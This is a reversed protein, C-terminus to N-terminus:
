KLTILYAVLQDIQEPKLDKGFTDPMFSRGNASYTPGAVLHASPEVISERIYGAADKAKGKYNPDATATAAKTGIGALSPGALNVGPSVSHCAFCAPPTANFLNQGLAVPESSPAAAQVPQSPQAASGMNTGPIAAGSVLIPRPPWGQTDIQAIWNLFAVVDAIEKDSLNQKPMVRRVKQEDYFQSPDRLFAKLYEPGRQVAIKTLDPAYYAGEGLLTHCNTCNFKHWVDKGALVEPTMKDENTLRPFQRHSDITMGLFTITVLATSIIAFLRAQRRTM